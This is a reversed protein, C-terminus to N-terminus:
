LTWLSIGKHIQDMLNKLDEITEEIRKKARDSRIKLHVKQLLTGTKEAALGQVMVDVGKLHRVCRSLAEQIFQSLDNEQARPQKCTSEVVKILKYLDKLSLQLKGVLSDIAQAEKIFKYTAKILVLSVQALTLVSAVSDVM